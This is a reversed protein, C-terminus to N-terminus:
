IYINIYCYYILQKITFVKVNGERNFLIQSPTIAGHCTNLEEHLIQLSGLIQQSIEKLAREPMCGVSELLNQLSGGDLHEMLISVCGEPTNWFSGYLKIHLDSDKFKNQWFSIWEKLCNRVDKNSIPEEKIAYLQLTPAHLMQKILGTHRNGKMLGMTIMEELKLKTSLLYSNNISNSNFYSHHDQSKNTNKNVIFKNIRELSYDPQNIEENAKSYNYLYQRMPVLPNKSGTKKKKKENVKIPSLLNQAQKYDQIDVLHDINKIRHNDQNNYKGINNANNQFFQNKSKKNTNTFNGFEPPLKNSGVKPAVRKLTQRLDDDKNLNLNKNIQQVDQMNKNQQEQNQNQYQLNNSNSNFNANNTMQYNNNKLQNYSHSPVIKPTKYQQDKNIEEM